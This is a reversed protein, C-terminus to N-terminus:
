FTFFAMQSPVNGWRCILGLRYSHLFTCLDWIKLHFQIIKIQENKIIQAGWPEPMPAPPSPYRPYHPVGCEYVCMCMCVCVCACTTIRFYVHVNCIAVKMSIMNLMNLMHTHAYTCAHMCTCTHTCTLASGYGWIDGGGAGGRSSCPAWIVLFAVFSSHISIIWNKKFIQFRCLNGWGHNPTYNPPDTSPHTLPQPWTM